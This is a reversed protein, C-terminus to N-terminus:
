EHVSEKERLFHRATERYDSVIQYHTTAHKLFKRFAYLNHNSLIKPHSVFHLLSHDSLYRKYAGLKFYSLTELSAVELRKDRTPHGEASAPKEAIFEKASQGRGRNHSHDQILKYLIKRHVRDLKDLYSQIPISSICIEVFEGDTESKSVDGSFRYVTKDTEIRSFDYHQAATFQYHRPIVSFDYTIGNRLFHPRFDSFPQISWGGARFGDIIHNPFEPKVISYLLDMSGNFIKERVDESVRHFRYRSIENLSFQHIDAQYIADLWHPHIHPMVYHGKRIMTRLQVSIKELDQACAPHQPSLERLKLLYTTDVFFVGKVDFEDMIDLLSNTPSIICDEIHGSRSGLFLEYDFTALLFKKLKM